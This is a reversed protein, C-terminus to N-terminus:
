PKDGPEVLFELTETTHVKLDGEDVQCWFGEIPSQHERVWSAIWDAIKERGAKRILPALDESNDAELDYVNLSNLVGKGDSTSIEVQVMLNSLENTSQNKQPLLSYVLENLESEDWEDSTEENSLDCELVLGAEEIRPTINLSTHPHSCLERGLEDYYWSEVAYGVDSLDGEGLVDRDCGKHWPHLTVSLLTGDQTHKLILDFDKRSIPSKQMNMGNKGFDSITDSQSATREAMRKLSEKAERRLADAYSEKEDPKEHESM